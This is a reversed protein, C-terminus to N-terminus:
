LYSRRPMKNKHPDSNFMSITMLIAHTGLVCYIIGGSYKKAILACRHDIDDLCVLLM